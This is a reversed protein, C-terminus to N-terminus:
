IHNAIVLQNLYLIFFYILFSWILIIIVAVIWNQKLLPPETEAKLRCEMMVEEPIFLLSLYILVPVIVIDDLFGIVPIFDPILDIPSLAYALALFIFIKPLVGVQPHKYAYYVVVLDRKLKETKEKLLKLPM